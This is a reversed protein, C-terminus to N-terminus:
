HEKAQRRLSASRNREKASLGNESEGESIWDKAKSVQELAFQGWDRDEAIEAASLGSYYDDMAENVEARRRPEGCESSSQEKMM